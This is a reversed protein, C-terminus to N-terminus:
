KKVGYRYTSQKNYPMRPYLPCAPMECDVRGDTYYGMCSYCQAFIMEKQTLREGNLHKILEKRGRGYSGHNEIENLMKLAQEDM